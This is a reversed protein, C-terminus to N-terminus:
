KTVESTFSYFIDLQIEFLPFKKLAFRFGVAGWWSVFVHVRVMFLVHLLMNDAESKTLEEFTFDSCLVHTRAKLVLRSLHKDICM